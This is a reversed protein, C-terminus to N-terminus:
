LFYEPESPEYGNLQATVSLIKVEFRPQDMHDTPMQAIEDLVNFGDVLVGFAAYENDLHPSDAHMIFFQSTQSNKNMTRAMSIVGRTHKLPNKFGNSGFEGKIPPFINKGWGGQIMFGSIVRHFILGDYYHNNVYKLFNDVTNKAVEPFLEVTMVGLHEVEILVRPNKDNLFQNANM